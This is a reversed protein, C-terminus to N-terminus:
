YELNFHNKVIIPVDNLHSRQKLENLIDIESNIQILSQILNKELFSKLESKRQSDDINGEFDLLEKIRENEKKDLSSLRHFIHMEFKDLKLSKLIYGYNIYYQNGFNSKQLNIVKILENNESFWNNGKRKFGFTKFIDNLFVKFENNNMGLM